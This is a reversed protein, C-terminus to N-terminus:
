QVPSRRLSCWMGVGRYHGRVEAHVGADPDASAVDGGVQEDEVNRQLLEGEFIGVDNEDGLKNVLQELHNSLM